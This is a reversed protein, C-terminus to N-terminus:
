FHVAEKSRKLWGSVGRAAFVGTSFCAQLLYGGTPAEWDLMEGAVFVGPLRKLMLTKDVSERCIGGASSIARDIPQLRTVSLPVAKVLTSLRMDSQGSLLAERVLGIAPPSLAAAQRLFNGLSRGQRPGDLRDALQAGSMDPLLDIALCANGRGLALADRLHQSVAYIAGGEVGDRTIVAEGRVRADGVTVAIRKLPQGEFRSAFVSSWAVCAGCNSARLDAVDIQNERLTKVWGGDSGMRPWSAGGLALVTADCRHSIEGSPGELRLSSGHSFGLWRHRAIFRVGLGDLRRLWARLLPAAKFTKPFVRGSSGVFVDQGLAECWRRLDDPSFADICPALWSAAVGYRLLFRDGAESHTLNLGGRGALLFKRGPSPMRDFITVEHGDVALTEAAILGAPGAGIVAIKGM